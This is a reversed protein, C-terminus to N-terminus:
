KKDGKEDIIKVNESLDDSPVIKKKKVGLEDYANKIESEIEYMRALHKSYNPNMGLVVRAAEKFVTDARVELDEVINQCYVYEKSLEHVKDQLEKTQRKNM